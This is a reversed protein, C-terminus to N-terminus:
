LTRPKVSERLEISSLYAIPLWFYIWLPDPGTLLKHNDTLIIMMSFVLMSIAKVKDDKIKIKNASYAAVFIMLVLISLGVVGGHFFTSVFGSHAHDFLMGSAAITKEAFFGRGVLWEGQHWLDSFIQGWIQFRYGSSAQYLRGLSFWGFYFFLSFIGLFLAASFVVWKRGYVMSAFVLSLVLAIIPGRSGSLVVCLFLISVVSYRVYFPFRQGFLFVALCMFAYVSAGIIEHSAPGIYKLRLSFENQYYYFAITTGGWVAAWAGVYSLKKELNNNKFLYICLFFFCSFSLVQRTYDYIYNLNFFYFYITTIFFYIFFVAILIAIKSNFVNLIHTHKSKFIIVLFPLLVFIYFFNNSLKSSFPLFYTILYFTLPYILLDLRASQWISKIKM